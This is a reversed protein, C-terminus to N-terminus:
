NTTEVGKFFILWVPESGWTPTFIFFIQTAVVWVNKCQGCGKKVADWFIAVVFRRAQLINDESRHCPVSCLIEAAGLVRNKKHNRPIRKLPSKVAAFQVFLTVLEVPWVFVHHWRDSTSPQVLGNQFITNTLNSWKGLSRPSFLVYKFGGLLERNWGM